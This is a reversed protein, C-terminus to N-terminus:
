DHEPLASSKRARPRANVPAEPISTWLLLLGAAITLGGFVGGTLYLIPQPSTAKDTSWVSDFTEAAFAVGPQALAVQQEQAILIQAINRARDVNNALALQNGLHKRIVTARSASAERVLADADSHIRRLLTESFEPSPTELKLVLSGDLEDEFILLRRLLFDQVMYASPRTAHPLGLWRYLPAALRASLSVIPEFQGTEPNWASNFLNLMIDDDESLRQGLALSHLMIRYRAFNTEEPRGLAGLLLGAGALGSPPQEHRQVPGVRLTTEFMVPARSLLLASLAGGAAAFLLLLWWYRLWTAMLASYTVVSVRLWAVSSM